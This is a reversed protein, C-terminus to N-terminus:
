KSVKQHTATAKGDKVGMKYIDKGFALAVMGFALLLTRSTTLKTKM